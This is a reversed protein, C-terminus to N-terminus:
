DVSKGEIKDEKNQEWRQGLKREGGLKVNMIVKENPKQGLGCTQMNTRVVEPSQLKWVEKRATKGDQLLKMMVQIDKVFYFLM